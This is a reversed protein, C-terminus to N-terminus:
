KQLTQKVPSSVFGGALTIRRVIYTSLQMVTVILGSKTLAMMAMCPEFGYVGIGRLLSCIMDKLLLARHNAPQHWLCLKM